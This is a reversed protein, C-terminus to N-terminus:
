DEETATSPPAGIRQLLDAFETAFRDSDTRALGAAEIVTRGSAESDSAPRARIWFRRRRIRLSLLLGAVIFVAAVLMLKKGPDHAIQFTAWQDVGVFSIRTGDALRWSQGPGLEANAIHTLSAVPLSYM